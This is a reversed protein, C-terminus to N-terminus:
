SATLAPLRVTFCCGQEENEVLITGGHAEVLGQAIALGLGARAGNTPSRAADERFGVEFIRGLHEGPIGGCSDRVWLVAEKADAKAHVSVRGGEPTHRLANDLLNRMVRLFETTAVQVHLGDTTVDGTLVVNRAHAVPAAISLADSVLDSLRVAEVRLNMLGAHIRSLRFLDDVMGSLREVEARITQHYRRVTASDSVVGDELAESVARIGALPTRLDHSIWAVLERRSAELSRERLTSEHLQEAVQNLLAALNSLERTSVLEPEPRDEPRGGIGTAVEAVSRVARRLRSAMGLSTVVGITGAAVVIVLAAKTDTTSIFMWCGAILIGAAVGLVTTMVAVWQHVVLPRDDLRSAIFSGILFFFLSAGAALAVVETGTAVSDGFALSLGWATSLGVLAVALSQKMSQVPRRKM